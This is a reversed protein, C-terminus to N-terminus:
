LSCCPTSVRFTGISSPSQQQHVSITTGPLAAQASLLIIAYCHNASGGRYAAPPSKFRQHIGAITYLIVSTKGQSVQPNITFNLYKNPFHPASRSCAWFPKSKCAKKFFRCKQQACGSFVSPTRCSVKPPACQARPFPEERCHQLPQRIKSGGRQRQKKPM